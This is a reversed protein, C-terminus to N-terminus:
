GGPVRALGNVGAHRCNLCQARSRQHSGMQEFDRSDEGNPSAGAFDAAGAGDFSVAVPKLGSDGSLPLRPPISTHAPSASVHAFGSVSWFSLIAPTDVIPALGGTTQVRITEPLAAAYRKHM